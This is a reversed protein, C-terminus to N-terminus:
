SKIKEEKLGLLCKFLGKDLDLGIDLILLVVENYEEDTISTDHECIHDCLM